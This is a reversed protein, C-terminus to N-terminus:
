PSVALRKPGEDSTMMVGHEKYKKLIFHTGTSRVNEISALKDSVFSSIEQLSKGEVIILFDYNGSILFHDVVNPHQCIRQAIADFGTKKEPRISVEILARITSDGEVKQDNIVTTYKLIVGDKKLAAIAKNVSEASVGLMDALEQDSRRADERLLRLVSKSIDLQRTRPM